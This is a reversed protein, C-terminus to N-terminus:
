SRKFFRREVEALQARSNIGMTEWPDPATIAAVRRKRRTFIEVVDTLYYEGARNTNQVRTLAHWLPDAQFCFTGTNVERIKKERKGADKDEVIKKIFGQRNRVVRGYGAPDDWIATLVSAPVKQKQHEKVFDRITMPSLAPVDGALVLITGHFHELLPKAMLVAHGTGLQPHQYAFEADSNLLARRVKQAQHGIVLISRKIGAKRVANIVHTVMPWGGVKHLVKPLESKMRVGKGAALIVAVTSHLDSKSKSRIGTM